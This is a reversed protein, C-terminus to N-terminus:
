EQECVGLKIQIPKQDDLQHVQQMESEGGDTRSGDEDSSKAARVADSLRRGSDSTDMLLLKLGAGSRWTM